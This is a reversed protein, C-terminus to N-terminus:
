NFPDDVGYIAADDLIHGQAFGLEHGSAIRSNLVAMEKLRTPMLWGGNLSTTKSRSPVRVEVDLRDGKRVGPPLYGRVLVLSTNPSAMIDNPGDVRRARMENMMVQRRASPGPDSGTGDLGFVLGVSEVKLWNMGVPTALDEVLQTKDLTDSLEEIDTDSSRIVTSSCGALVLPLAYLVPRRVRRLHIRNM